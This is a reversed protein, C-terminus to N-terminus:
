FLQWASQAFDHIRGNVIVESAGGDATWKVFYVGNEWDAASLSAPIDATFARIIRGVILIPQGDRNSAMVLEPEFGQGRLFDVVSDFAGAKEQSDTTTAQNLGLVLREVRSKDDTSLHELGAVALLDEFSRERRPEREQAWAAPAALTV